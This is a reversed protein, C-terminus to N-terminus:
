LTDCSALPAGDYAPLLQVIVLELANLGGGCCVAAQEDPCLVAGTTRTLNTPSTTPRRAM